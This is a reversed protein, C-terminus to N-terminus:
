RDAERYWKAGRGFLRAIIWDPSKMAPWSDPHWFNLGRSSLYIMLPVPLFPLYRRVGEVMTQPPQPEEFYGRAARALRVNTDGLALMTFGLEEGPEGRQRLEKLARELYDMAEVYQGTQVLSLGYARLVYAHLRASIPKQKLPELAIKAREWHGRLQDLRARLYVLTDDLRPYVPDNLDTLRHLAEEVTVLLRDIAALRRATSYIRFAAILTEIGAEPAAILEHYVINQTPIFPDSVAPPTNRWFLLARDHATRYAAADEAIWQKQLIEREGSQVAHSMGSAAGMLPTIFSYEALRDVLRADKDDHRHRLATLLTTNYGFPIAALYLGEKLLRPAQDVIQHLLAQNLGSMDPLPDPLPDSNVPPTLEM